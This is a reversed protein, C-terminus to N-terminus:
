LSGDRLEGGLPRVHDPFSWCFVLLLSTVGFPATPTGQEAAVTRVLSRLPATEREQTAQEEETLWTARRRGPRWEEAAASGTQVRQPACYRPFVAM